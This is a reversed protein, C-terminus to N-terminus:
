FNDLVLNNLSKETYGSSCKTGIMDMFIIKNRKSLLFLLFATEVFINM